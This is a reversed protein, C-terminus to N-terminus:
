DSKLSNKIKKNRNSPKSFLSFKTFKQMCFRAHKLIKDFKRVKGSRTAVRLFIYEKNFQSFYSFM